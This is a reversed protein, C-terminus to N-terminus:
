NNNVLADQKWTRVSAIRSENYNVEKVIAGDYFFWTGTKVGNTYEGISKKSGDENYSVWKGDPKGDNFLGQQSIKGNDHFYTAKVSQGEAELQPKNQSTMAASCLLLGLIIYNKM